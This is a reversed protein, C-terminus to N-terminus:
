VRQLENLSRLIWYNWAIGSERKNLTLMKGFLIFM